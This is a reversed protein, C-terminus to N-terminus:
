KVARLERDHKDELAKLKASHRKNLEDTERKQDEDFGFPKPRSLMDIKGRALVHEHALKRGEVVIEQRLKHLEDRQMELLKAKPSNRRAAEADARLKTMPNDHLAGRYKTRLDM